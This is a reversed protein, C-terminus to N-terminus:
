RVIPPYQFEQEEAFKKQKAPRDANMGIIVYNSEKFM